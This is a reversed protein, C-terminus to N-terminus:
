VAGHKTLWEAVNRCYQRIDDLLEPHDAIARGPEEAVFSPCGMSVDWNYDAIHHFTSQAVANGERGQADFTVALNFPKGTTKSHGRAIVRATPDEPPAGVDGEHPHAPFYEISSGDPRKLIRHAPAIVEITQVDGNRGSHFNPWDIAPTATDDRVRVTADPNQNKTHFYHAAGVGGLTCISSGLDMHDRLVFLGGGKRRFESIASCEDASLGDGKDVAILWLQDYDSQEIGTLVADPTGEKDRATVDHSEALLDRVLRFRGVHWDDPAFPITTQILIKSM